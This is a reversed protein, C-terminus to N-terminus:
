ENIKHETGNEDVYFLYDEKPNYYVAEKDKSIHDAILYRVYAVETPTLSEEETVVDEGEEFNDIILERLKEIEEATLLLDTSVVFDEYNDTILIRANGIEYKNLTAYPIDSIGLHLYEPEEEYLEFLDVHINGTELSQQFLNNVTTQLNTKMYTVADAITLDQADLREEIYADQEDFKNNITVLYQELTYNTQKEFAEIEEDQLQLKTDVSKIYDNVIGTICEKFEELSETMGTEFKEIEENIQDVYSNYDDILEQMKGYLRAVMEIATVSEVDNFAPHVDTLVWHPLRALIPKEIM